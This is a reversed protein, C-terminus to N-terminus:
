TLNFLKIFLEDHRVNDLAKSADLASVFVASNHQTFCNNITLYICMSLRSRKLVLSCLVTTYFENFKDRNCLETIYATNLFYAL